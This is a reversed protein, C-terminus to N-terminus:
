SLYYYGSTCKVTEYKKGRKLYYYLYITYPIRIIIYYVTHPILFLIKLLKRIRKMVEVLQITKHIKFVHLYEVLYCIVFFESNLGVTKELKKPTKIQNKINNTM